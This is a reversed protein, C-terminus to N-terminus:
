KSVIPTSGFGRDGELLNFLNYINKSWDKLVTTGPHIGDDLLRYQKRHGHKKSRKHVKSTLKPQYAGARFNLEVIFQNISEIVNDIVQQLKHYGCMGNSRNLDLGCLGSFKIKTTPYLEQALDWAQSFVSKMHALLNVEDEFRLTIEGSLRNKQSM